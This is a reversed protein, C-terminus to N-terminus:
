PLFVSEAAEGDGCSLLASGQLAFRGGPVEHGHKTWLMDPTEPRLSTKRANRSETLTTTGVLTAGRSLRKAGADIPKITSLKNSERLSSLAPRCRTWSAMFEPNPHWARWWVAANLLQDMQSFIRLDRCLGRFSGRRQCFVYRILFLGSAGSASCANPRVVVVKDADVRRGFWCVCCRALSAARKLWSLWEAVPQTFSRKQLSGDNRWGDLLRVTKRELDAM